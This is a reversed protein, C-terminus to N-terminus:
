MPLYVGPGPMNEPPQYVAVVRLDTPMVMENIGRLAKGDERERDLAALEKATQEWLTSQERTLLPRQLLRDAFALGEQM